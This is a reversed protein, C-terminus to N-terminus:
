FRRTRWRCFHRYQGNGSSSLWRFGPCDMPIAGKNEVLTGLRRIEDADTSSMELWIKGSSLGEIVGDPEEMVQTSVAPSPLCTITVDSAMAM